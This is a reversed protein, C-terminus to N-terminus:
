QAQMGSHDKCVLMVNLLGVPPRELMEAMRKKGYEEDFIRIQGHKAAADWDLRDIRVKQDKAFWAHDSNTIQSWDLDADSESGVQEEDDPEKPQEEEKVRPLLPAEGEEESESEHILKAEMAEQFLISNFM